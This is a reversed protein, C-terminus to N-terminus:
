NAQVVTLTGTIDFTAKRTGGSYTGGSYLGDKGTGSSYGGVYLSYGPARTLLPSSLVVTQYAKVPKFTLIDDGGASSIHVLSGAAQSSGFV